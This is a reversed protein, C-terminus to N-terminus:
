TRPAHSTRTKYALRAHTAKEDGHQTASTDLGDDDSPDRNLRHTPAQTPRPSVRGAMGQSGTVM